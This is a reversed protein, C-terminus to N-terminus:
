RGGREFQAAYRHLALVIGYIETRDFLSEFLGCSLFTDNAKVWGLGLREMLATITGVEASDIAELVGKQAALDEAYGELFYGPAMFYRQEEGKEWEPDLPDESPQADPDHIIDLIGVTNALKVEVNLGGTATDMIIRFPRSEYTGSCQVEDETPVHRLQGGTEVAIPNLLDMLFRIRGEEDELDAFEM